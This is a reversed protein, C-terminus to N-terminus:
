HDQGSGPKSVGEGAAARADILAQEHGAAVHLLDIWQAVESATGRLLLSAQGGLPVINQTNTDRILSRMTTAVRAADLPAVDVACQVLLVQHIRWSAAQAPDVVSWSSPLGDRGAQAAYLAVIPLSDGGLREMVLGQRRFVSEVFSYVDEAPVQAGGLVGSPTDNLFQRTGSGVLVRLGTAEAFAASLDALTLDRNGPVEIGAHAPPLLLGASSSASGADDGQATAAVPAAVPSAPLALPVLAMGLAALSLTANM